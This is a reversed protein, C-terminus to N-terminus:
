GMVAIFQGSTTNGGNAVTIRIRDHAILVPEYVAPDLAVGDTDHVAVRPYRAASANVDDESWLVQGTAELDVDFDVGDAYDDKVYLIGHLRGYAVDIYGVGDGSADTEITVSKREAFM